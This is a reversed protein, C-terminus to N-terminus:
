DVYVFENLNFLALCYDTLAAASEPDVGAPLQKPIALETQPRAATTLRQTELRLFEVAVRAEDATPSRGLALQYCLAIQRERREPERRLVRGCLDRAARLSDESNLLILAQPAITSRNRRPCSANTDPRDFADFLPYRLNRRVFLYISRRQHETPDATVPWQNRLLTSVMEAPLTPRIGPGFCNDNLSGSAALLADRITEGELRLRNMRSWLRNQPDQTKSLQWSTQAVQRTAASWNASEPRSAQQYTASTLLLKHLWKLSWGRRPFEAALWDLLEPHTPDAGMKGFDSPSRVLGEGFHHQWVRNVIVRLALSNDQRTLWEAIAIRPNQQAADLTPMGETRLVRPWDPTLQPGPRRFDGRIALRCAQAAGERVVRGAPLEPLKPLRDRQQSLEKHKEREEDTLAELMEKPSPQLDPNKERLRQRAADDLSTLQKELERSAAGREKQQAAFEAQQEATPIPHDRFINVSEFCARLRYFDAQSLPDFKHDHCQACGIQLGLFVAGVTSAMENLVTHRREEQLNIDPMDPGCLLWGTAIASQPDEPELLDGALQQRVFKDYPLDANLAQIVWDRFRWANPRVLDHEFGDTEAFRALDLWHLAWREGYAPSALLRDILREVADPSQDAVFAAQEEPTPPLGTLDFAVRRLYTLRDAPPLPRLQAAELKSLIFRDVENAPWAADRVAPPAIVQLPRFAWHERDSDTIEPEHVAEVAAPQGADEARSFQSGLTGSLVLLASVTICRLAYRRPPAQLRLDGRQNM